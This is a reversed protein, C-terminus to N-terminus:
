SRRHGETGGCTLVGLGTDTQKTERSLPNFHVERWGRLKPRYSSPWSIFSQRKYMKKSTDSKQFDARLKSIRHCDPPYPFASYLLTLPVTVRAPITPRIRYAHTLGDCIKVERLSPALDEEEGRRKRVVRIVSFKDRPFKGDVAKGEPHVHLRSPSLDGLDDLIFTPAKALMSSLIKTREEFPIM